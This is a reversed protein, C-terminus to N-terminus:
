YEIRIEENVPIDYRKDGVILAGKGGDSKVCVAGADMKVTIEGFPTPVSGKIWKLGGLAPRVEYEAYGPKTPTVGLFYRGLLYVPSAGWAHCLSKGYPRGYMALHETGEDEPNYKEWFSTAGERLMGGWYSLIEPLVQKQEGMRCLAELEYFRMYPTTIPPIDGNHMVDLLINRKDEGDVMDYIVAFMNPFKTVQRNMVGDEIAHMFAHRSDDWFTPKLKAKLSDALAAYKDADRTYEETTISGQPPNQLPNDRLTAACTHMTEFAKCLLIQEFCLIGRKHMPFDVWDVFIWDDPKGEAMGDGNLRGMVYQMMTQMRPYIERVFDIDGTYQYFDLVSKFWYFTYDMITNVHATVPDKGRLQRITRRVCDTDFRLYYNMLYSQIADGSWTWRDRKIGDMFFERTTLDMTYAAVEWIRNLEKDNSKFYGTKKNTFEAYEYDMTVDSYTIMGKTEVMVYRFAKSDDLVIEVLENEYENHRLDLRDLTECHETDLAEERSEGYYINIFGKGKVGKLRIYGFTELGFDFLWKNAGAKEEDVPPMELRKLKYESPPTDISDFNWSAAPVYIGSGHAEGNEDIWIKDEYTALWTSGSKITRGKVFLAPPTAQNHIKINLSHEGAPVKFKGPMGFQLKGDLMLNFDGEAAITVTEARDINVKTSFEVTPYHSDQKWFPPFMAGRETRRNNFKNGLWVEFDGPYWIWTPKNNM